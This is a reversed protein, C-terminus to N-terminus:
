KAVELIEELRWAKTKSLPRSAVIRVVDGVKASNQDDHAHFKKSHRVVKKYVPHPRATEVRVVITKDMAASVVVGRREKPRSREREPHPLRTIPKRERGSAKAAARTKKASARKVSTEKRESRTRRPKSPAAPAPPSEEAVPEEAAEPEAPAEESAPADPEETSAAAETEEAAADVAQEDPKKRARGM